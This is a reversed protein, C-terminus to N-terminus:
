QKINWSLRVLDYIDILGDPVLDYLPDDLKAGYFQALFALDTIDVNEDEYNNVTLTATSPASVNGAADILYLKYTGLLNPSLISGADGVANTMSPGVVFSITGEPAFWVRDSPNSSSVISVPVGGQKIINSSFVTDQNSPPTNDVILVAASPLSVNGLADIVYLQYIGETSPAKITTVTGNIAKTMQPGALFNTTGAPAFWIENTVDGSSKIPVVVGGKKTQSISFVTDQNTPASADVTLSVTSPTSSEGDVRVFLKYIGSSAPTKISGANGAARTMNSGEVFNTTGAPAFWIEATANDFSSIAVPVGGKNLSGTPFVYNAIESMFARMADARGYGYINDRGLSGLDVATNKIMSIVQEATKTPFQAQVLAAIGAVHPASASTGAFPSGFGGVGTVSVGDVAVLDPKNRTLSSPYRMTVPGLSSYFRITSPAAQGVAGVAIVGPVAPHGYISDASTLNDSYLISDGYTYVFLELTRTSAYGKYNEVWIEGEISYGTNNTYYIVEIPDGTGDQSDSCYDVIKDTNYDYLNLDYDNGAAGFPDDWQLIILVSEGPPIDVYISEVGPGSGNFDHYDYQDAYYRGQYHSDADNGASSIYIINNNKLVDAVHKAVIGDEFYPEGLWGIDDVIIKCGSAVLDNIASNFAIRNDGCDHFYLEAGPAMDHIIELMATGEDGGQTNSLVHLNSPLDLSSQSQLFHDVGDSIVGIKVGSGNQGFSRLVQAAREITVGQTTTSGINIKPPLVTKITRVGELSALKTLQKVEIWAALLHNDPDRDNIHKLLGDAYYIDVGEKLYIYVYVMEDTLKGGTANRLVVAPRYQKREQMVNILDKRSQSGILYKSDVLKLLDGSLKKENNPRLLKLNEISDYVSFRVSQGVNDVIEQTKIEALASPSVVLFIIISILTFFINRTRSTKV